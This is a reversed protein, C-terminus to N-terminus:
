RLVPQTNNDLLLYDEPSEQLAMPAGAQLRSIVDSMASAYALPNVLACENM